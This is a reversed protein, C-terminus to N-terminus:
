SSVTGLYDTEYRTYISVEYVQWTARAIRNSGESSDLEAVISDLM